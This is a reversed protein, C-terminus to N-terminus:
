NRMFEDTVDVQEFPADYGKLLEILREDQLEFDTAFVENMILPFSNIFTFPRPVELSNGDPLFYAAYSNFHVLRKDATRPHGHISGHDAQFMIVPQNRSNELISDIMQLIRSNVFELESLHAEPSPITIARIIDGNETFVIPAHPKLLHVIAFTAEPMAAFTEVDDVTDLFRKAAYVHYPMFEDTYFLKDLQSKFFRLLTTDHYLSLFSQKYLFGRDLMRSVGAEAHFLNAANFASNDVNIDIPGAPTYDRNIDAISSPLLMGSLVHIYTYGLQQLQKAVESEAISLRLFDLDSIQTPNSDYYRMNLTSALSTFTAGYNSHAHEAVVFGRDRLAQTFASNDFNMMEKLWADSPYSDPIIYYIDPRITSDNEKPPRQAAEFVAGNDLSMQAFSFDYVLGSIILGSPAIMLFFLILNLPLTVHQLFNATSRYIAFMIITASLSLILTWIFLSKPMFVLTYVHGSLSFCISAISLLFATKYRNRVITNTLFFAVTTATLMGALGILVEHDIVLGINISYLFAIPYVGLLWLYFPQRM